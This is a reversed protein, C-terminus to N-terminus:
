NQDLRLVFGHDHGELSHVLLVATVESACFCLLGLTRSHLDTILIRGRSEISRRKKVKQIPLVKAHNLYVFM